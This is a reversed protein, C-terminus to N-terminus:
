ALGGCSSVDSYYNRVQGSFGLLQGRNTNYIFDCVKKELMGAASM